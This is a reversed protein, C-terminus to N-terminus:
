SKGSTAEASRDLADRRDLVHLYNGGFIKTVDGASYGRKGMVARVESAVEVLTAFPLGVFGDADLGLGIHDVGVRARVLDMQDVIDHIMKAADRGKGHPLLFRAGIIGVMGGTAAVADLVEPATTRWSERKGSLAFLTHSVLLPLRFEGALIREVAERQARQSAHALDLMLGSREMAQWLRLGAETIGVHREPNGWLESGAFCSSALHNLSIYQVGLRRAYRLLGGDECLELESPRPFRLSLGNDPRSLFARLTQVDTASPDFPFAGEIGMQVGVRGQLIAARAAVGDPAFMLRDPHAEVQRHVWAAQAVWACLADASADPAWRAIGRVYAKLSAEFFPPLGRTVIGFVQIGKGQLVLSDLTVHRTFHQVRPFLLGLLFILRMWVRMAWGPSGDGALELNHLPTDAHLDVVADAALQDLADFPREPKLRGVGGLGRRRGVM